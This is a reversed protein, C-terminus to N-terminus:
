DAELAPSLGTVASGVSLGAGVTTVPGALDTVSAPLVCLLVSLGELLAAKKDGWWGKVLHSMGGCRFGVKPDAHPTRSVRPLHLRSCLAM